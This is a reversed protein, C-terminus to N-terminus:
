NSLRQYIEVVKEPPDGPKVAPDYLAKLLTFDATKDPRIETTNDYTFINSGVSDRLLGLSQTLEEFLCGELKDYDAGIFINAVKLEDNRSLLTFYCPTKGEAFQRILSGSGNRATLATFLVGTEHSVIYIFINSMVFKKEADFIVGGFDRTSGNAPVEKIIFSTKGFLNGEVQNLDFYEVGSFGPFGPVKREIEAMLGDIYSRHSDGDYIVALKPQYVWKRITGRNSSIIEVIQETVPKEEAVAITPFTFGLCLAFCCLWAPWLSHPASKALGSNPDNVCM